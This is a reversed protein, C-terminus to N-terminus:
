SRESVCVCARVSMCVCTHAQIIYTFTGCVHVWVSDTYTYVSNDDVCGCARECVWGYVRVCVCLCSGTYHIHAVSCTRTQIIQPSHAGCECM